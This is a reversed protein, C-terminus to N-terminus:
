QGRSRHVDSRSCGWFQRTISRVAKKAYNRHRQDPGMSEVHRQGVEERKKSIPRGGKSGDDKDFVKNEPPVIEICIIVLRPVRGTFEGGPNRSKHRAENGDADYNWRHFLDPPSPRDPFLRAINSELQRENHRGQNVRSRPRYLQFHTPQSKGELHTLTTSSYPLRRTYLVRQLRRFRHWFIHPIM